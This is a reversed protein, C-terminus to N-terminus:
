SLPEAELLGPRSELGAGASGPFTCKCSHFTLDVDDHCFTLDQNQGWGTEPTRKGEQEDKIVGATTVMTLLVLTLSGPCVSSTPKFSKPFVTFSLMLVSHLSFIPACLYIWM